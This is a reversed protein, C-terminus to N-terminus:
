YDRFTKSWAGLALVSWMFNSQYNNISMISDIDINILNLKNVEDILSAFYDRNGVDNIVESIPMNFGIKNRYTFESGFYNNSINKLISKTTYNSRLKMPIFNIKTKHRISIKKSFEAIRHDLFPVRNEVGHAMCMKDQRILLENLYTKQEYSLFKEFISGSNESKLIKLRTNIARSFNFDPFIKKIESIKSRSSLCVLISELDNGDKKMEKSRFNNIMLAIFSFKSFIRAANYRDYGGFIEDAGEGSLLVKLSKKAEKALLYIGIANPQSLPNDFSWTAKELNDIIDKPQMLMKNENLQYKKNIFDVYREENINENDFTVSFTRKFSKNSQAAISTILSSDIGGSLQGGVEVDSILQYNISSGLLKIFKEQVGTHIMPEDNNNIDWFKSISLKGNHFKMYHGPLCEKVNRFLTEEGAVYGFMLYEDTKDSNYHYSFDPHPRFAKIESAIFFNDNNSYYYLPKIGLRDRAIFFEDKLRDHIVLSFMGNLFDLM